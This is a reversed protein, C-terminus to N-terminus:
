EMAYHLLINQKKPSPAREKKTQQGIFYINLRNFVSFSAQAWAGVIPFVLSTQGYLETYVDEGSKREHAAGQKNIKLAWQEKTQITM